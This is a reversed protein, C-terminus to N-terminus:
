GTANRIGERRVNEVETEHRRPAPVADAEEATTVDVLFKAADIKKLLAAAHKGDISGLVTKEGVAAGASKVAALVDDLPLTPAINFYDAGVQAAKAVDEATRCVASFRIGQGTVLIDAYDETSWAYSPLAFASLLVVFAILLALTKRM